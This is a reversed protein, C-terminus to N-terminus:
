KVESANTNRDIKMHREGAGGSARHCVLLRKWVTGDGM